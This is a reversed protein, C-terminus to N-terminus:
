IALLAKSITEVGSLRIDEDPNVYIAYTEERAESRDDFENWYRQVKHDPQVPQRQKRHKFIWRATRVKGFPLSNFGLREKNERM